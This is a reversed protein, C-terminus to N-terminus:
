VVTDDSHNDESLFFYIASGVNDGSISALLVAEQQSAQDTDSQIPVLLTGTIVIAM